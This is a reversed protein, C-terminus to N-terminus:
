RPRVPPRWSRRWRNRCRTAPLHRVRHGLPHLHDGRLRRGQGRACQRAAAGLVRQRRRPLGRRCDLQGVDRGAGAHRRSVRGQRRQRNDRLARIGARRGQRHRHGPVEVGRDRGAHRAPRQPRLRRRPQEGDTALDIGADNLATLATPPARFTFSKDQQEGGTTIATELNVMTLDAKSLAPVAQGFVTAPDAALRPALRGSFHVDGAFAVTFQGAPETASRSPVAAASSPSGALPRASPRVPALSSALDHHKGSSCGFAILAFTVLVATVIRVADTNRRAATRCRVLMGLTRLIPGFWCGDLLERTGALAVGGRDAHRGPRRCQVRQAVRADLEGPRATGHDHAIRGPLQAIQGPGGVSIDVDLRNACVRGVAQRHQPVRGRVHHGLRHLLQEGAGQEADPRRDLVAEVVVEQGLPREGGVVEGRDLLLHRSIMLAPCRKARRGIPSSSARASSASSVNLSSSIPSFPPPASSSESVPSRGLDAGAAQGHVVVEVGPGALPDPGVQAAARVQRGGPADRRELQHAAGGRVPAAALLVRLQLPDVAGRPRRPVVQLGVQARSSSAALRSWRLSPASSSRNLKGSSIPEPSRRTGGWPRRGACPLHLVVDRCRCMSSPKSNTPVGCM